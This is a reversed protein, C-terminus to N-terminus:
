DLAIVALSFIKRLSQRPGVDSLRAAIGEVANRNKLVAKIEINTPM